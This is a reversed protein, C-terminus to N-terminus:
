RQARRHIKIALFVNQEVHRAERLRRDEDNYVNLAYHKRMLWRDACFNHM